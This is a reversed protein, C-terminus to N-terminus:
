GPFFLKEVSERSKGVTMGINGRDNLLGRGSVRIHGLNNEYEWPRKSTKVFKDRDITPRSTMNIKWRGNQYKM